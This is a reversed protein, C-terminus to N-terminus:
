RGGIASPSHAYQGVEVGRGGGVVGGGDGGGSSGVVWWHAQCTGDQRGVAVMEEELETM